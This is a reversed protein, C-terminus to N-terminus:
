QLVQGNDADFLHMKGASRSCVVSPRRGEAAAGSRDARHRVDGALDFHILTDSGLPEVLKVAVGVGERGM